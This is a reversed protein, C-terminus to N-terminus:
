KGQGATRHSQCDHCRGVFELHHDLIQFNSQANVQALLLQEDLEVDAIEGCDECVVHHHHHSDHALEYLTIKRDFTTARIQGTAAMNNLNRYITSQDISEGANKLAAAIQAASQPKDSLVQLLAQKQQTMRTSM